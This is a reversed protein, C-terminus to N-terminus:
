EHPLSFYLKLSFGVGNFDKIIEECAATKAVVATHGTHSKFNRM